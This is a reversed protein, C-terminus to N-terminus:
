RDGQTNIIFRVPRTSVRRVAALTQENADGRGTDVLVVADDSTQVTINPQPCGVGGPGMLALVTGEGPLGSFGPPKDSRARVHLYGTAVAAAVVVLTRAWPNM